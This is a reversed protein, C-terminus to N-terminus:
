CHIRTICMTSLVFAAIRSIAPNTMNFRTNILPHYSPKTHNLQLTRSGECNQDKIITM